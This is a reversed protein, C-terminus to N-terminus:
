SRSSMGAIFRRGYGDPQGAKETFISSPVDVTTGTEQIAYTM